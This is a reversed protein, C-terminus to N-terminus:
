SVFKDEEVVWIGSIKDHLAQVDKDILMWLYNIMFLYALSIQLIYRLCFRYWFTSPNNFVDIFKLKAFEMGLTREKIITTLLLYILGLSIELYNLCNFMVLKPILLNINRHLTTYDPWLRMETSNLNFVEILFGSLIWIISVDIWHAAIRELIFKTRYGIRQLIFKIGHIRNYVKSM